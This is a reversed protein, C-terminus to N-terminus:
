KIQVSISRLLTVLIVIEKIPHIISRYVKVASSILNLLNPGVNVPIGIGRFVVKIYLNPGLIKM